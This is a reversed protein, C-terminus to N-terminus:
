EGERALEQEGQGQGNEEATAARHYMNIISTRSLGLTNAISAKSVTGNRVADLILAHLRDRKERKHNDLARYADYAEKIQCLTESRNDDQPM